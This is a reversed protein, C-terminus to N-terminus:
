ARLTAVPYRLLRSDRTVLSLGDVRAQAVMIRDFPDRHLNPLDALAQVHAVTIALDVFGSSISVSHLNPPAKLQGKRQKTAIEWFCAASVYVTNDADALALRAEESIARGGLLWWLLVHTDVLLKM